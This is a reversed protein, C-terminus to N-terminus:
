SKLFTELAGSVGVEVDREVAKRVSTSGTQEAKEKSTPLIKLLVAPFNIKIKIDAIFSFVLQGDTDKVVTISSACVGNSQLSEKKKESGTLKNFIWVVPPLGSVSLEEGVLLFTYNPMGSAEKTGFRAVNYVKNVMTLGPFKTVSDTALICDGEKPLMERGYEKECAERWLSELEPSIAIEEVARSGGSSLLANRNVPNKLYETIDAITTDPPLPDSYKEVSASFVLETKEGGKEEDDTESAKIQFVSNSRTLQFRTRSDCLPVPQFAFGSGLISITVFLSISRLFPSSM